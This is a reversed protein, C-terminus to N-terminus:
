DKEITTDITKTPKRFREDPKMGPFPNGPMGGPFGGPFGKPMGPFGGGSMRGMLNRMVSAAVRQGLGSLLIQVPPLILLLGMAGSIFGPFALLVGGVIGVLRRGGRGALLDMPLARAQAIVVKVGIYSLAILLLLPGLTDDVYVRIVLFAWLEVCLAGFILLMVLCGLGRGM